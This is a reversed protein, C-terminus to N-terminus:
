LAFRVSLTATVFDDTAGGAVSPDKPTSNFDFFFRQMGLKAQLAVNKGLPLAGFAALEVGAGSLNPFWDRAGFEGVGALVLLGASGGVRFRDGFSFDGEASVRWM